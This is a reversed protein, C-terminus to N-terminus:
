DLTRPHACREREDRSSPAIHHGSATARALATIEARRRELPPVPAPRLITRHLGRSRARATAGALSSTFAPSKPRLQWVEEWPAQEANDIGTRQVAWPLLRDMAAASVEAAREVGLLPVCCALMSLWYRYPVTDAAPELPQTSAFPAGSLTWAIDREGLVEGPWDVDPIRGESHHLHVYAATFASRFAWARSSQMDDDLVVLIDVDSTSVDSGQAVSGTLVAFSM